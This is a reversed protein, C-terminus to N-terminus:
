GWAGMFDDEQRSEMQDMKTKTELDQTVAAAAPDFAPQIPAAKPTEETPVPDIVETTERAEMWSCVRKYDAETM